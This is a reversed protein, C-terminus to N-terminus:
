KIELTFSQTSDSGLSDIVQLKFTFTGAKMDFAKRTLIAIESVRLGHDILLCMILADRRGQPTNPQQKLAEAIDQPITVAEAKKHGKRTQMGDARRKEDLQPDDVTMFAFTMGSTAVVSEDRVAELLGEDADAALAARVPEELAVALPELIRLALLDEQLKGLLLTLM